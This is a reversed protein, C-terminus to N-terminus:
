SALFEAITCLKKVLMRKIIFYEYKNEDLMKPIIKLIPNLFMNKIFQHKRWLDIVLFYMRGDHLICMFYKAKTPVVMKTLPHFKYKSEDIRGYLWRRLLCWLCTAHIRKCRCNFLENCWLSFKMEESDM